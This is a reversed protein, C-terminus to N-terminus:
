DALLSELFRKLIEVLLGDETELRIDQAAPEQGHSRVVTQPLDLAFGKGKELICSIYFDLNMFIMVM